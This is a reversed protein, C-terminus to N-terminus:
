GRVIVPAAFSGISGPAEAPMPFMCMVFSDGLNPSPAGEPQKDIAMKLKATAASATVQVLEDRLKHLTSIDILTTDISIMEDVEFKEKETVARFTNEFLRGVFWWAQARINLFFQYNTPAKEDNKVIKEHPELVPDGARWPILKVNEPMLGMDELRNAESKIGAGVGICDYQLNIPAYPRCLMVAKRATIATDRAHWAEVVRVLRHEAITCANVAAGGDAVDLGASKNGEAFEKHLNLKVHANCVADFWEPKIITGTQTAAYDREIERAYVHGLGKSEFAAKRAKAWEDTKEPHDRWDLLFVNARDKYIKGGPKWEVGAQRTRHFITGPASVSSIDIRTRTNESLSAEVAEPHELYAAEDVFYVRTRGGRGINDGIDGVIANGNEPNLIRQHMLHKGESFKKPLFVKPLGRITLRIKEFISSADGLKDLKNATASGWGVTAGPVFRWMWSSYAVGAWTAGMDRSKEVLGTGDGIVCAHFFEILEAQRKFLIFPMRTPLNKAANRPEYVDCWHCIFRIPDTAYWEEILYPDNELISLTRHRWRQVMVYNRTPWEEKTLPRPEPPDIRETIRGERFALEDEAEAILAEILTPNAQGLFGDDIQMARRTTSPAEPRVRKM